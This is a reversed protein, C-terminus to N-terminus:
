RLHLEGDSGIHNLGHAIFVEISDQYEALVGSALWKDVTGQVISFV